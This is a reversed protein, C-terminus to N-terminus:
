EEDDDEYDEEVEEEDEDKSAFEINFGEICCVAEEVFENWTTKDDINLSLIWKNGNKFSQGLMIDDGILEEVIETLSEFINNDEIYPEFSEEDVWSDNTVERKDNIKLKPNSFVITFM